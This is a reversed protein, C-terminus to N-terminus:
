CLHEDQIIDGAHITLKRAADADAKAKRDCHITLGMLALDYATRAADHISSAHPPRPLCPRAARAM